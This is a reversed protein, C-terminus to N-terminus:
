VRARAVYSRSGSRKFVAASRTRLVEGLPDWSRSGLTGLPGSGGGPPDGPDSGRPIPPLTGLHPVGNPVGIPDKYARARSTRDLAAENSFVGLTGFCAFGKFNTDKKAVM